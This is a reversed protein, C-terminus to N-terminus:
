PENPCGENDMRSSGEEDFSQDELRKRFERVIEGTLYFSTWPENEFRVSEPLPVGEEMLTTETKLTGAM